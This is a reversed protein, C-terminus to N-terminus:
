RAAGGPRCECSPRSPSPTASLRRWSAPRSARSQPYGVATVIRSTMGQPDAGVRLRNGELVEQVKVIPGAPHYGLDGIVAFAENVKVRTGVKFNPNELKPDINAYYESDGLAVMAIGEDPQDLFVGIRNAPSTLKQYTEEYEQIAQMAEQM